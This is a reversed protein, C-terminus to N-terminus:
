FTLNWNCHSQTLFLREFQKLLFIKIRALLFPPPNAKWKNMMRKFNMASAALMVNINDGVIGKYFNRSLRHDTKLHGIRPEIAARRRFGKRLKQKQYSTDSAKVQPIIINTGLVNKVGRYGRDVFNNKLVEETLRQQQELAPLLTHGDYDNKPINIAGIIVGSTKTTTISVKSGFEYKKHEKGKSICQVHPEHLSYIKQHDDRKQALVRKFLDLKTVYQNDAPLKREIERVLRGAITKIKRDAKRAKNSNKPHNRFRQDLTMKKITRTYAQRLELKEKDAIDKCQTIIKKHLKSDTPFTINKEQVTTDTTGENEKGDKGNIRISEKLILEVGEEGIRKRFEVLETPV